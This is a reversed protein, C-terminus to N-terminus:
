HTRCGFSFPAFFSAFPPTAMRSGYRRTTSTCSSESESEKVAVKVHPSPRVFVRQM